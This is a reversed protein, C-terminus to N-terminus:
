EPRCVKIQVVNTPACLVRVDLSHHSALCAAECPSGGTDAVFTDYHFVIGTLAKKLTAAPSHILCNELLCSLSHSKGSGQSGCIFISSPANVNYFIRPDSDSARDANVDGAILGYENFPAEQTSTPRAEHLDTAHKRVVETFIPVTGIDGTPDDDSGDHLLAIQSAYDNPDMIASAASGPPSTDSGEIKSAGFIFRPSDPPDSLDSDSSISLVDSAKRKNQQRMHHRWVLVHNDFTTSSANYNTEPHQHSTKSQEFPLNSFKAITSSPFQQDRTFSPYFQVSPSAIAPPQRPCTARM